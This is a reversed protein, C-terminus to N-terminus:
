FCDIISIVYKLAIEEGKEHIHRLLDLHSTSLSKLNPIKERPLVLFHFKAQLILRFDILWSM